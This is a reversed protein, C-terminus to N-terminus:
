CDVPASGSDADLWCIPDNLLAVGGAAHTRLLSIDSYGATNVSQSRADSFGARHTIAARFDAFGPRHIRQLDYDVFGTTYNRRRNYVCRTVRQGGSLTRVTCAQRAGWPGDSQIRVVRGGSGLVGAAGVIEDDAWQTVTYDM